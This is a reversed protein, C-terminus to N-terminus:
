RLALIAGITGRLLRPTRPPRQDLRATARRAVDPSIRGTLDRCTASSGRSANASATPPTTQTAGVATAAVVVLVVLVAAVVVSVRVRVIVSGAFVSVTVWVLVVVAGWAVVDTVFRVAVTCTVGAPVVM